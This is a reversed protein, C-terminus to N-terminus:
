FAERFYLLAPEGMFFPLISRRVEPDPKITCASGARFGDAIAVGSLTGEHLLIPGAFVAGEISSKPYIHVGSIRSFNIISGSVRTSDRIYIAYNQPIKGRKDLYRVMGSDAKSNPHM